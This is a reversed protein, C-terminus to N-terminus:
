LDRAITIVAVAHAKAKLLAQAAATLTAGTTFVDDVLLISHGKAEPVAAFAGKLNQLRHRADLTSQQETKRTRVLFQACPIQLRKGLNEAILGAQNYGRRIRRWWHLPIPMIVDPRFGDSYKLWADALCHSLFSALIVQKRFKLRHVANRALGEFPFASVAVVWPREEQQLCHRCQAFISDNPGGCAPCRKEPLLPFQKRCDDCIEWRSDFLREKCVPCVPPSIFDNLRSLFTMTRIM